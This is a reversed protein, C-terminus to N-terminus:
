LYKVEKKIYESPTKNEYKKFIVNFYQQSSFGVKAYLTKFNLSGKEDNIIKKAEEIRIKNLLDIFTLNLEKKIIRCIYSESLMVKKSLVSLSFDMDFYGENIINIIKRVNDSYDMGNYKNFLKKIVDNFEDKDIPKVIYAYVRLDIAKKAYEFSEYGSIIVFDINKEIKSIMDLGTIEPMNIDVFCVDIQNKKIIDIAENARYAKYVEITENFRKIRKEIGEVINVEDDVILVRM